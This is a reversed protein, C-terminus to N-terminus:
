FRAPLPHFFGFRTRRWFKPLGGSRKPLRAASTLPKAHNAPTEPSINEASPPPSTPSPCGSRLRSHLLGHRRRSATRCLPSTRFRSLTVLAAYHMPRSAFSLRAAAREQEAKRHLADPPLDRGSPFAQRTFQHAPCVPLPRPAQPAPAQPEYLGPRTRVQALRHRKSRRRVARRPNERRPNSTGQFTAAYPSAMGSLQRPENQGRRRPQLRRCLAPHPQRGHPRGAAHLAKEPLGSTSTHASHIVTSSSPFCACLASLPLPKSATCVHTRSSESTMAPPQCRPSYIASPPM